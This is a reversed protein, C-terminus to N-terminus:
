VTGGHRSRDQRTSPLYVCPYEQQQYEARQREVPAIKTDAKEHDIVVAVHSIVRPNFSDSERIQTM